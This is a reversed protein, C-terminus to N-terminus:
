RSLSLIHNEEISKQDTMLRLNKNTIHKIDVFHSLYVLTYAKTIKRKTKKWESNPQCALVSRSRM